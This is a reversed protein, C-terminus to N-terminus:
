LWHPVLQRGPLSPHDPNWGGEQSKNPVVGKKQAQQAGQGESWPWNAMNCAIGASGRPEQACPCIFLSYQFQTDQARKGTEQGSRIEDRQEQWVVAHEKRSGRAQSSGLTVQLRAHEIFIKQKSDMLLLFHTHPPTLNKRHTISFWHESHHSM